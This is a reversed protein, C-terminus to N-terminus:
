QSQRQLAPMIPAEEIQQKKKGRSNLAQPSEVRKSTYQTTNNNESFFM